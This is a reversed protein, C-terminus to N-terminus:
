TRSPAPFRSRRCRAPSSSAGRTRQLAGSEELSRVLEETYFPNGEAKTAVLSQLEAPFRDIGLISEAIRASEETSLGAPVIRTFYSREGFPNVYGPRYTFVLLARLAPVSEILSTLFEESASDIWHLDEIM